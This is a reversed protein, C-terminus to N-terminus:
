FGKLTQSSGDPQILRGAMGFPLDGQVKNLLITQTGVWQLRAHGRQRYGLDTSVKKWTGQWHVFVDIMEGDILVREISFNLNIDEFAEFDLHADRQMTELSDTPLIIRELASRDHDVYAKRLAEVARDIRLIREHDEPYEITKGGCGIGVLLVALSCGIAWLPSLRHISMHLLIPVM